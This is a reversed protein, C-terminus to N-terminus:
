FRFTAAAGFTRPESRSCRLAQSGPFAGNALGFAGALVQYFKTLCYSNDTLNNGFVSLSWRDNASTITARVGLEVFGDQVAQPNADNVGGAFFDSVLALNGSLEWRMSSSGIRGRVDAGVNGTFQPSFSV